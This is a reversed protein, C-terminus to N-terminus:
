VRETESEGQRQCGLDVGSDVESNVGSGVCFGDVFDSSIWLVGSIESSIRRLGVFDLSSRLM